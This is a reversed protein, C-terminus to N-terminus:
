PNSPGQSNSGAQDNSDGQAGVYRRHAYNLVTAFLAGADVPNSHSLALKVLAIIVACNTVSLRKGSDDM